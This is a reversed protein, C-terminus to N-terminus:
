DSNVVLHWTIGFRDCVLGYCPSFFTKHPAMIEQGGDKLAEYLKVVREENEVTINLAIRNGVVIEGDPMDSLRVQQGGFDLLAQLIMEKTEEPMPPMQPNPPMDGYRMTGLNKADFAKEYFTIAEAANGNFNLYPTFQM